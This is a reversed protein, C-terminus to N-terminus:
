WKNRAERYVGLATIEVKFIEEGQEDGIGAV